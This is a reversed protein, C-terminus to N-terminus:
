RKSNWLKIVLPSLTGGLLFSLRSNIIFPHCCFPSSTWPENYRLQMQWRKQERLMILQKTKDLGRARGMCQSERGALPGSVLETPPTVQEQCHFCTQLQGMIPNSKAWFSEWAREGSLYGEFIIKCPIWPVMEHSNTVTSLKGSSSVKLNIIQPYRLTKGLDM